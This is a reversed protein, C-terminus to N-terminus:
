VKHAININGNRLNGYGHVKRSKGIISDVKMLGSIPGQNAQIRYKIDVIGGFSEKTDKDWIILWVLDTTKIGEPLILEVNEGDYKKLSYIYRKFFPQKLDKSM